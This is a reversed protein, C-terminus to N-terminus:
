NIPKTGSCKKSSFGICGWFESETKANKRVVMPRGCHCTEHTRTTAEDIRNALNKKWGEVRHVRKQKGVPVIAGDEDKYVIATRIADEGCGRSSEGVIGSFIRLCLRPGIIKGYVAEKCNPVTIPAFGLNKLYSDFETLSINKYTAAM